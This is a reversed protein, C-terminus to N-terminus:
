QTKDFAHETWRLQLRPPARRRWMADEMLARKLAVAQPTTIRGPNAAEWDEEFAWETRLDAARMRLNYHIGVLRWGWGTSIAVLVIMTWTPVLSPVTTFTSEVLDRLAVTAALAYFVGAPSMIVDKVYVACLLANVPLIALFLIVLRDGDDFRFAMWSSARRAVYWALVGSTLTSTLVNIVTWPEVSGDSIGRIFEWVAGRPEAFLVTVVASAINSAYFPIPNRGFRAVVDSPQLVRFGFGTAREGLGPPAGHLLAVRAVFYAVLVMTAIGVGRMSVGRYGVIYGVVLILWVLVGTELTLIAFAVLLAAIADIWWGGRSAALNAAGLCCLVITLFTNIPFAETITGAFTHIGLLIALGCPLVVADVLRVPRLLRVAMLLAAIVQLAQASRFWPFYNGRALEYVVKLQVHLLPRLYAGNQLQKMFLQWMSVDQLDLLNGFSDTLQIPMGFLFYAAILGLVTAYGYALLPWRGSAATDVTSRSWDAPITAGRGRVLGFLVAVLAALVVNGPHMATLSAASNVPVFPRQTVFTVAAAVTMWVWGGPSETAVTSNACLVIWLPGIFAFALAANDPTAIAYVLAGAALVLL